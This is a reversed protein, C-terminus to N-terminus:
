PNKRAEWVLRFTVDPYGRHARRRQRRGDVRVVWVRRGAKPSWTWEWLSPDPFLVGSAERIRDWEEKRPLRGGFRAAFRVARSYSVGTVPLLARPDEDAIAEGAGQWQLMSVPRASVYLAPMSGTGPVFVTSWPVAPELLHDEGPGPAAEGADPGLATRSTSPSPVPGTQGPGGAWASLKLGLGTLFIAGCLVTVVLAWGPLGTQAVLTHPRGTAASQPRDRITGHSSTVRPGDVVPVRGGLRREVDWLVQVVEEFGPRERPETAMMRECLDSLAQDVGPLFDSLRPRPAHMHRAMIAMYTNPKDDARFPPRGVALHFLTCGLSYIDSRHDAAEGRAQEPAIYDPTGVILGAATLEPDVNIAKALGFDTVKIGGQETAILNAPKVDRHVVGAAAAAQLGQAAQRCVAAAEAPGIAGRLQLVSGLDMGRIYEMAFFPLGEHEGIYYVQVVNPHTIRAMARAERVFRARLEENYRHAESLVKVAVERKLGEDYCLYVEGMAGKGLLDLVRYPGIHDGLGLDNGPGHSM